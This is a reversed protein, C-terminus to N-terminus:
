ILEQTHAKDELLGKQLGDPAVLVVNGFSQGSELLANAQAAELLPFRAMIVPKIKGEELLRFLTAWDEMYRGRGFKSTTTGYLKLSRGNPLVNLLILRGLLRM